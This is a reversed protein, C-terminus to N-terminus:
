VPWRFASTRVSVDEEGISLGLVESRRGSWNRIRAHLEEVEVGVDSGGFKVLGDGSIIERDLNASDGHADGRGGRDVAGREGGGSGRGIRGSGPGARSAACGGAGWSGPGPGSGSVFNCNPSRRQTDQNCQTQTEKDLQTM